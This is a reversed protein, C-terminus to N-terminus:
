AICIDSVIIEFRCFPALYFLTLTSFVFSFVLIADGLRLEIYPLSIMIFLLM